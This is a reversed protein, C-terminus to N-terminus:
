VVVMVVQLVFTTMSPEVEFANSPIGYANTKSSADRLARRAFACPELVEQIPCCHEDCCDSEAELAPVVMM